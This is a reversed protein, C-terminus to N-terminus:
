LRMLTVEVSKFLNTCISCTSASETAKWKSKTLILVGTMLDDLSFNLFSGLSPHDLLQLARQPVVPVVPVTPVERMTPDDPVLVSGILSDM